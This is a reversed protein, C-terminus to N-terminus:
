PAKILDIFGHKATVTAISADLCNLAIAITATFDLGAADATSLQVSNTNNRYIVTYRATAAGTRILRLEITATTDTTLIWNTTSAGAFMIRFNTNVMGTMGTMFFMVHLRDGDNQMTNVPMTYSYLDENAGGGYVSDTDFTELPIYKTAMTETTSTTLFTPGSLGNSKDILRVKFGLLKDATLQGFRANFNSIVDTATSLDTGEDFSVIPSYESPNTFIRSQPKTNTSYFLLKTGTPVTTVAGVARFTLTSPTADIIEIEMEDPTASPIYTTIIPEEILTLNVNSQLYLNLAAPPTSAADIFTQRQVSTLSRWTASLFGFEGRRLQQYTSQPNRPSVRTRVQWGGYSDQFVSGALKGVIEEVLASFSIRAM